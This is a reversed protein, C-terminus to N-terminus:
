RGNNCLKEQELSEKTQEEGDRGNSKAFGSVSQDNMSSSEMKEEGCLSRLNDDSAEENKTGFGKPLVDTINVCIIESKRIDPESNEPFAM